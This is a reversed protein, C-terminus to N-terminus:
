PKYTNNTNDHSPPGRSNWTSVTEKGGRRDESTNLGHGSLLGALLAERDPQRHRLRPLDGAPGAARGAAAPGGQGRARSLADPVRGDGHRDAPRGPPHLGLDSSCVDSSCDSIRMEYATM